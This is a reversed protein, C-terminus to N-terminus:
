NQPKTAAKVLKVFPADADGLQTTRGAIRGDADILILATTHNFEGKPLARYQIGLVAALKRVTKADTRALSWRASDVQRQDATKKLIAVTDHVSDFTVMMVSLHSREEESLKAETAKLAEILMPCVFQCSTYFMSILMPQGRREELLFNKGNQDTLAVKLQYISDAPLPTTASAASALTVVVTSLLALALPRLRPVPTPFNFMVIELYLAYM